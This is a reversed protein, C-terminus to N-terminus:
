ADGDIILKPDDTVKMMVLQCDMEPIKCDNISEAGDLFVPIEMGFFKQLSNCIDLKAIIERGTNTSVGFRMGDVTPVCCEKYEGNKQYDFLIWKVINFHSDIESKLLENKTKSVMSLQDLINESNAKVQEYDMQKKRLDSIQEDIDVNNSAKAIKSIVINLEERLGTRRIRLQQKIKEGTDMNGLQSELKSLKDQLALYEQSETLDMEQPLSNMEEFAKNSEAAKDAWEKKVQEINSELKPISENLLTIEEKLKNGEITVSNLRESKKSKFDRKIQIIKEEPMVQGCTPCIMSDESLQESYIETYKKRLEAIETNKRDLDLKLDELEKESRKRKEYLANAEASVSDYLQRAERKKNNLSTFASQRVGGMDLKTQMIESQLKGVAEYSKDTDQEQQEIEKIEDELAKKQLELEAVDYDVKAKELGIIQNPIAKAQEEAKKKSAKYMADIESFKYKELLDAVDSCGETMCAIEADTKDEAMMFLIKRMDAAKQGTFVEPHSLPLFLDFKIGMEEFYAKFDRETKPVSNVEYFNTITIKSVGKSNPKSVSRKQFKAASVEIGNIDLLVDVRPLCEEINNPRIDPNSKLEYDKDAWLWFWATAITTKGSGNEGLIKTIQGLNYTAEHFGKFDTLKMEKILM